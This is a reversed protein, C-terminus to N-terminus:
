GGLDGTALAGSELPQTGAHQKMLVALHAAFLEATWWEDGCTMCILVEIGDSFGYTPLHAALLDVVAPDPATV